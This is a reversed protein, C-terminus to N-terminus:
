SSAPAALSSPAPADEAAASAVSAAVDDASSYVARWWLEALVRISETADGHGLVLERVIHNEVMALLAQASIRPSIDDPAIGREQDRAIRAEAREAFRTIFPAWEDPLHEGRAGSLQAALLLVRAHRNVVNVVRALGARLEGRPEGDGDLYPSAALYMESFAQQILRDVVARKNPFYFYVATRSVFAKRAIADMTLHAFSKEALAERAADLIAEETANRTKVARRAEAAAPTM